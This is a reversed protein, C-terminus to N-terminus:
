HAHKNFWRRMQQNTWTWEFPHAHLQNYETRSAYVHRILEAPYTWSGRNLYRDRFAKNLMEAQNLWSAHVPTLRERWWDSHENLYEKTLQASHTSDSDHILFVSKLDQHARRFRELETIYHRASKKQTCVVNMKGDHVILFMLLNVTGHRIYEFERQEISGPIARRIPNRELVQFNPIEDVCLIWIGQKALKEANVYCWLIKEARTKFQLDLKSTKWFRTRHPQLDVNQLIARITRASISEIIGDEMAQRALDESSWHTIHLGKAVPELCALEV